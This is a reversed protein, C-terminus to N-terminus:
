SAFLRLQEIRDGQQSLEGRFARQQLSHFLNEAFNLASEFNKRVSEVQCYAEVFKDQLNLPPCPLPIRELNKQNLKPQASGTVYPKLDTQLLVYELYRLRARGNFDVVHAHNNVWFKGTAIFAIPTSRAVLNAGDEAILLREGDFLYDNVYDIVGSAGYYPYEGHTNERDSLKVPVRMSDQSKALKGFPQVEWGKPNTVPDGFMDLFTAQLLTDLKALAARRKARLGDACDLIAAIRRQEELPPLPIEIEEVISKSIEKFTAGRGLSQLYATNAKLWYYLYVSDLIKDEPIFSKFGQNTAMPLTNIAVHGIPARSSLIVSNAPLLTTSCSDYGLQTITNPTSAIYKGDLKSIDAPTVWPIDGGWYEDVNTRPTSGSVIRACYKLKTMRWSM